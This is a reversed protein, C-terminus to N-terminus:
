IGAEVDEREGGGEGEEPVEIKENYDGIFAFAFRSHTTVFRLPGLSPSLLSTFGSRNETPISSTSQWTQLSTPTQKRNQLHSFSGKLLVFHPYVGSTCRGYHVKNGGGGGGLFQMVKTKWKGQTNCGDWSFSFVISICFKPPCILHM